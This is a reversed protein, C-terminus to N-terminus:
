RELEAGWCKGFLVELRWPYVVVLKEVLILHLSGEISWIRAKGSRGSSIAIDAVKCLMILPSIPQATKVPLYRAQDLDCITHVIAVVISRNYCRWKYGISVLHKRQVIRKRIRDLSMRCVLWRQPCEQMADIEGQM